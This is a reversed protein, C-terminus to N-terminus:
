EPIPECTGPMAYCSDKVCYGQCAADTTCPLRQCSTGSCAFNAPCDSPVHCPKPQCRHTPGCVEGIACDPDSACGQVCHTQGQCVCGVSECIWASGMAACDADSSCTSPSGDCIGCGPFVGPPVCENFSQPPCDADTRCQNAGLGGGTGGGTGGLGGTGGAGGTPTTTSTTSAAGSAVGMAPGSGCAATSATAALVLISRRKMSPSM